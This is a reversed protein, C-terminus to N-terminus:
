CHFVLFLIDVAVVLLVYAFHECWLHENPLHGIKMKFQESLLKIIKQKPILPFNRNQEGTLIANWPFVSYRLSYRRCIKFIFLANCQMINWARNDRLVSLITLCFIPFFCISDIYSGCPQSFLYWIFLRKVLYSTFHYIKQHYSRYVRTHVIYM